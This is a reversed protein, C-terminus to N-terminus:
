NLPRPDAYPLINKVREDSSILYVDASCTKLDLASNNKVRQLLQLLSSNRYHTRGTKRTSLKQSKRYTRRTSPINKAGNGSVTEASHWTYPTMKSKRRHYDTKLRRQCDAASCVRQDPHYRSPAFTQKCYPCRRPTM